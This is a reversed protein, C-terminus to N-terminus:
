KLSLYKKKYKLYKMQLYHPNSLDLSTLNDYNPHSLPNTKRDLNVKKIEDEYEPRPLHIRTNKMKSKIITIIDQNEVRNISLIQPTKAFLYKNERAIVDIEENTKNLIINKDKDFERSSGVDVRYIYFDTLGNKNEKPCSMTIGFIFDQDDPDIFGSMPNYANYIKRIYDQEIINIFTTNYKNISYDSQTCHGIVVRYDEIDDLMLFESITKKVNDECFSLMLRPNDMKIGTRLEPFGWNRDLLPTSETSDNLYQYIPSLTEIRNYQNNIDQNYQNIEFISKTKPLMGHVFITNNIKILIGCGDKLLLDYGIKGKVFIGERNNNRYYKDNNDQYFIFQRYLPNNIINMTEHNGLVKIIRGYKEQALENIKNIFRLLKIELQPYFACNCYKDTGCKKKCNIITSDAKTYQRNPDIMDGCIVVYSNGGIWEYGLSEDYCDDNESIDINLFDETEQDLNDKNYNKKAIVKACDRLSIIFAHIDGHIDSTAYIPGDHIIETKFYPMIENAILRHM